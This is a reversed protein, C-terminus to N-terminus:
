ERSGITIHIATPNRDKLIRLAKVTIGDEQLGLVLETCAKEFDNFLAEPLEIQVEGRLMNIAAKNSILMQGVADAPWPMPEKRNWGARTLVFDLSEMFAAENPNVALDFPTKPFPSLRAVLKNQQEKTLKWGALKEEIAVRALRESEAIRNAEAANQEARAAREGAQAIQLQFGRAEKQAEEARQRAINTAKLDEAAEKETQAAREFAMAARENALGSTRQADALLIEDFKQVFGDAKSIFSDAVFEGAVGAVILVWGVFALLRAWEPTHTEPISFHFRRNFKWRHVISHIEHWLEPGEMVLGVVVLFTATLLRAFWVARFAEFDARILDDIGKLTDPIPISPPPLM